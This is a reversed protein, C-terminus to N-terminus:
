GRSRFTVPTAVSKEGAVQMQEMVLKAHRPDAEIEFGQDTCRIIRNLVKGERPRGKASGIHQTQIEYPKELEKQSCEFSSVSGSCVYDDGHFLAKIGKGEHYSVSPHGRRRTFGVSELHTSLTEQWSKAADRTGYLCRRLKGVLNGGHHPDEEPLEIFVDRNIKAYFCARRVDCVTLARWKGGPVETAAFSTVM